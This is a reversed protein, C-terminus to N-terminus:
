MLLPFVNVQCGMYVNAPILLVISEMIKLTFKM